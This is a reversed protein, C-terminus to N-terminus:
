HPQRRTPAGVLERWAVLQGILFIFGFGGSVQLWKKMAGIREHRLSRRAGEITISSALLVTTNLWLISPIEINQWEPSGRLVIYASTLGAFLMM